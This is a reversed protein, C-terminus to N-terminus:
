GKAECAGGGLDGQGREGGENEEGMKKRLEESKKLEDIVKLFKTKYITGKEVLGHTTIYTQNLAAM